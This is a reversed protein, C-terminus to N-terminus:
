LSGDEGPDPESAEQRPPLARVLAMAREQLGSRPGEARLRGRSRLLTAWAVDTEGAIVAAEARSLYDVTPADRAILVDALAIAERALVPDRAALRWAIRLRQAEEYLIHERPTDRLAPELDVISAHEGADLRILGEAIAAEVPTLSAPDLMTPATVICGARAGSRDPAARVAREFLRAARRMEAREYAVWGAVLDRDAADLHSLLATAREGGGKRALVRALRALDLDRLLRPLPDEIALAREVADRNRRPDGLRWASTALRNHDDTILPAGASLARTGAADLSLVAAVDEVRQVGVRAFVVPADDISRPAQELVDLPERSAVFLLAQSVPRYLEVYPFVDRLSALLSRLLGEDVFSLGIWQVFIGDPALRSAALDFFDRTYLHSAGSTWPHSPQSVIADYRRDTLILAGRADGSYLSVRPDALPDGYM